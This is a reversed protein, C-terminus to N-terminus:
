KILIMKRALTGSETTLRYVYVGSAFAGGNWTMEHRGAALLGEVIRDVERGLLNTVVLSVRQRRPLDFVIRTSPNFPNPYNQDLRITKPLNDGPERSPIDTAIPAASPPSLASSNGILDIQMLSVSDGPQPAPWRIAFAGSADATSATAARLEGSATFVDYVQILAGPRAVGTVEAEGIGVGTVVLLSEPPVIGDQTGNRLEVAGSDNQRFLNGVLRNGFATPDAVLIGWGENAVIQNSDIQNESAGAFLGVAHGRNPLDNGVLPDLGILNHRILNGRTDSGSLHIARGLGDAFESGGNGGIANPAAATGIINGSAGDAILVGVTGNRVARTGSIDIGIVNGAIVNQRTPSGLIAVGTGRPFDGSRNGSILNGLVFNPGDGILNLNAGSDILVGFGNSVPSTGFLNMGIFNNFVRNESSGTTLHVGAVGSAGIINRHASDSGGILIDRAGDALLIGSVANGLPAIGRRDVGVYNGAIVLNRHEPGSISIGSGGNGGILNRDFSIAGGIVVDITQGGIAIGDGSNGLPDIGDARSGIRNGRVVVARSLGDIVIGTTRNGSILNGHSSVDGGITVSDGDRVIIGSENPYSALGDANSGIVSRTIRVTSGNAILVGASDNGAVWCSDITISSAGNRIRIGVRNAAIRDSALDIGIAIHELNTGRADPGDIDIAAASRDAFGTNLVAARTVGSRFLTSAGVIRIGSSPARDIRLGILSNSDSTITLVAQNVTLNVADITVSDGLITTPQAGNIVIGVGTIAIQRTSSSFRITDAGTWANAEETAARFSCLGGSGCIGDGPLPDGFDSTTTVTFTDASVSGALCTILLFLVFRHM